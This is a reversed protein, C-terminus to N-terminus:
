SYCSYIYSLYNLYIIIYSSEYSNSLLLNLVIEKMHFLFNVRNFEQVLGTAEEDLTGKELGFAKAENRARQKELLLKEKLQMNKVEFEHFGENIEDLKIQKTQM